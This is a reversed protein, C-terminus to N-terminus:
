KREEYTWEVTVTIRSWLGESGNERVQVDGTYWTHYSSINPTEYADSVLKALARTTVLGDGTPTFIEIFIVGNGEFKRSGQNGLTVQRRRNSRVTIRAYPTIVVGDAGDIMKQLDSTIPVDQWVVPFGTNTWVSSFRELIEDVSEQSTQSM